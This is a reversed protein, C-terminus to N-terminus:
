EHLVRGRRVDVFTLRGGEHDHVVVIRGDPSFTAASATAAPTGGPNLRARVRLRSAGAVNWLVLSHDNASRTAIVRGSPSWTVSIPGPQGTAITTLRREHSRDWLELSGDNKPVAITGGDPSIAVGWDPSAAPDLWTGLPRADAASFALVRHDQVGTTVIEK